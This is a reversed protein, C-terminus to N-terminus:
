ATRWGAFFAFAASCYIMVFRFFADWEGPWPKFTVFAIVCYTFVLALGFLKVYRM